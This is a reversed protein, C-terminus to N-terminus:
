APKQKDPDQERLVRAGHRLRIHRQPRSEVAVNFAAIAMLANMSIALLSEVRNDVALEEVHFCMAEYQERTYHALM